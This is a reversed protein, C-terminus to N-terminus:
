LFTWSGREDVVTWFGLKDCRVSLQNDVTTSRVPQGVGTTGIIQDVINPDFQFTQAAFSSIHFSAGLMRADALPLTLTVAGVAGDNTNVTDIYLSTLVFNSTRVFNTKRVGSVGGGIWHRWLDVEVENATFEWSKSQGSASDFRYRSLASRLDQHNEFFGAVGRAGFGLNVTNADSVLAGFIQKSFGSDGGLLLWDFDDPNTTNNLPNQGWQWFKLLVNDKFDRILYSARHEMDSPGHNELLYAPHYQGQVHFENASKTSPDDSNVYTKYQGTFDDNFQSYRSRDFINVTVKHRSIIFSDGITFNNNSGLRITGVTVTTATNSIVTSINFDTTNFVMAGVYDDTGLSLGTITDASTALVAGTVANVLDDYKWKTGEPIVIHAGASFAAQMVTWVLDTEDTSQDSLSSAQKLNILDIIRLVAVDGTALTHNVKEDIVDGDTAAQGTTKVFYFGGGGNDLATSGTTQLTDGTSIDLAATMNSILGFSRVAVNGLQNQTVGQYIRWNAIDGAFTAGSTHATVAIYYIGTDLILDKVQYSTATTWAGRDVVAAISAIVKDISQIGKGTRTTVVADPGNVVSDLKEANDQAVDFRNNPVPFQSLDTAM